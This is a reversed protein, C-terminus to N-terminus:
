GLVWSSLIGWFFKGKGKPSTAPDAWQGSKGYAYPYGACSCRGLFLLKRCCLPPLHSPSCMGLAQPPTRHMHGRQVGDPDPQKEQTCYSLLKPLGAKSWEATRNTHAKYKTSHCPLSDTLPAVYILYVRWLSYLSVGSTLTNTGWVKAPESCSRVQEEKREEDRGREDQKNERDRDRGELEGEEM